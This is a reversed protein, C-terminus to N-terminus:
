SLNLSWGSPVDRLKKAPVGVYVTRPPVDSAVVAGAGVISKEGVEVGPLITSNGGISVGSRIRPGKLSYSRQLMYKDNLLVAYPGIFVKDEITSYSSVYVGSQLKVNSGISIHGELISGTGVLSHKGLNVDERILVSHGLEVGEGLRVDEYIVSGSRIVCGDALHTFRKGNEERGLKKRTPHGIVCHSGIWSGSGIELRGSIKSYEEIRVSDELKVDGELVSYAGIRCRSGLKVGDGVSATPHVDVRSDEVM